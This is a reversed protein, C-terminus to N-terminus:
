FGFAKAASRLDDEIKMHYMEPDTAMAAVFPIMSDLIVFNPDISKCLGELLTFSRFVMFLEPCFEVDPLSSPIPIAQLSTGLSGIDSQEVYDLVAAAFQELVTRQDSTLPQTSRLVGDEVLYDLMVRVDRNLYSVFLRKFCTRLNEPCTQVSGFDYLVIDGAESAGLNGAHLDTHVLGVDFLQTLFMDMLRQCYRPDTIPRSPVYQMVILNPSSYYARPVQVDSGEFYDAFKGISTAEAEFDTERLVTAGLEDLSKMADNYSKRNFYSMPSLVLRVVDLDERLCTTLNQRRIKVAVQQGQYTGLHVQAISGCSLPTHQVILGPVAAQELVFRLDEPAMPAVNDRLPAFATVIDDPFIDGRTSVWQGIKVFLCGAQELERSLWRTYRGKDPMVRYFPLSTAIKIATAYKSAGAVKQVKQIRPGAVLRAM